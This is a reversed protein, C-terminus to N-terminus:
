VESKSKWELNLNKKRYKLNLLVWLEVFCFLFIRFCMYLVLSLGQPFRVCKEALGRCTSFVYCYYYYYYYYYYQFSFFFFQLCINSAYLSEVFLELNSLGFFANEFNSYICCPSAIFYYHYYYYYYFYYYYIIIFIINWILSDGFRETDKLYCINLKIMKWKLNFGFKESGHLLIHILHDNDYNRLTQDLKYVNKVLKSRSIVHNQCCLHFHSTTEPESDCSCM